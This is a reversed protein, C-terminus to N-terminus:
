ESAVREGAVPYKLHGVYDLPQTVQMSPVDGARMHLIDAPSIWRPHASTLPLGAHRYAELVLQSCFFRDNSGSGLQVLAVGRMCFERVLGPVLPLECVRREISFPAHLLVGVYGYRSGVKQQAFERLGAVTQATTGPHRFAVVMAEEDMLADIHRLRVGDGVAEVIQGDGLYLAAHSVPSLTALRIGLSALGNKATLVIDGPRLASVPVRQGGNDPSLSRDQFRIRLGPRAEAEGETTATTQEIRTACGTAAAAILLMLAPLRASRLLRLPFAFM